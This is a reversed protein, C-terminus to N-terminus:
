RFVNTSLTTPGESPCVFQNNELDTTTQLVEWPIDCAM